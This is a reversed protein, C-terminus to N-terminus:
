CKKLIGKKEILKDSILGDIKEKAERIGGDIGSYEEDNNKDYINLEGIRWFENKLTKSDNTTFEKITYGKYKLITKM